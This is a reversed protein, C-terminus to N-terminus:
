IVATSNAKERDITRRVLGLLTLILGVAGTPLTALLCLVQTGGFPGAVVFGFHGLFASLVALAIATGLTFLGVRFLM